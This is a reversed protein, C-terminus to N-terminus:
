IVIATTESVVRNIADQVFRESKSDLASTAEDLILIQPRHVVARAIAVRQREGGSLRAGRDGVLTDYQQPLAMIFEHANAIRAARELDADTLVERGFRINNRVTDHFLLNEQSVVGFLQRYERQRYTRIDSGDMLIAGAEPDYLRLLLDALTSKGAGSPGVLAVFEGKRIELTVNDIARRNGYSFSAGQVQIATDFTTKQVHGDVITPKEALLESVRSYAAKTAEVLLATTASDNIPKILLKGVYTFLLLGELTLAGARVQLVAILFIGLVAVADLVSRAPAELKKVRSERLVSSSVRDISEDLKSLEFPEAGFSKTVRVSTLAEQVAGVLKASSDTQERTRRRVPKKLVQTFGFQLLLLGMSGFALWVSTSFLYASYIVIQVNHHILSRVLPGLAAATNTADTSVRSILEGTRERAFFAMDQHLVHSLLDHQILKAYRTRLWAAGYDALYTAGAVLTSQLLFLLGFFVLVSNGSAGTGFFLGTVRVGLSNLDLWSGSAPITQTPILSLSALLGALIAPQLVALLNGVLTLGAVLVVIGAHRRAYRLILWM